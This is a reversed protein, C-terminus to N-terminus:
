RDARPAVRIVQDADTGIEIVDFRLTRGSKKFNLNALVRVRVTEGAAVRVPNRWRLTVTGDTQVHSRMTRQYRDTEAWMRGVDGVTSLGSQRLVLTDVVVDSEGARLALKVVPVRVASRPVVRSIPDPGIDVELTGVAFVPSVLFVLLLFIKKVEM